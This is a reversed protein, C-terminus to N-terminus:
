VNIEYSGRQSNCNRSKILADIYKDVVHCKLLECNISAKRWIASSVRGDRGVGGRRGYQCRLLVDFYAAVISGKRGLVLFHLGLFSAAGRWPPSRSQILPRGGFTALDLVPQSAGEGRADGSKPGQSALPDVTLVISSIAFELM